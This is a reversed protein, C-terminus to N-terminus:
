QRSDERAEPQQRLLQLRALCAATQSYIYEKQREDDTRAQMETSIALLDNRVNDLRRWIPWDDQRIIPQIFGGTAFGTPSVTEYSYGIIDTFNIHIHESFKVVGDEADRLCDQIANYVDDDDLADLTFTRTKGNKCSIGVRYQTM